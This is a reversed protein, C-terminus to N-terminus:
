NKKIYFFLGIMGGIIVLPILYSWVSSSAEKKPISQILDEDAYLVEPPVDQPLYNPDRQIGQNELDKVKIDLEDLQKKLEPDTKAKEDAERRWSQYDPDDHHHHAFLADYILMNLYFDGFGWPNYSYHYSPMYNYNHEQRYRDRTQYVADRSYVKGGTYKPLKALSYSSVSPQTKISDKYATSSIQRNVSRDYDSKTATTYTPTTTTDEVAKTTTTKNSFNGSTKAPIEKPIPKTEKIPPTNSSSKNSFGGSSKAPSSSSSKSSSSISSKSSSSSSSSKAQVILLDTDLAFPLFISIVFFCTLIKILLKKHM